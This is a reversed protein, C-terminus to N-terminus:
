RGQNCSHVTHVHALILLVHVLEEDYLPVGFQVDSRSEQHSLGVQDELHLEDPGDALWLVHEGVDELRNALGDSSSKYTLKKLQQEESSLIVPLTPLRAKCIAMRFQQMVTLWCNQVVITIARAADPMCSGSANLIRKMMLM